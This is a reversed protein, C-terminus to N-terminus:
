TFGDDRMPNVEGKELAEAYEEDTLPKKQEVFGAMARGSIREEALLAAREANLKRTETNVKVQENQLQRAEELVPITTPSPVRNKTDEATRKQEETQKEETKEEESKIKEDM